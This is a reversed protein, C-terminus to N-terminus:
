NEESGNSKPAQLKLDHKMISTRNEELYNVLASAREEDGGFFEKFHKLMFGNSLKETVERTRHVVAGKSVNIKAVNNSEMIRLIIDKLAKSQTRRQKMEANLSAVEEQLTMWRKLLAPLEGIAPAPATGTPVLLSNTSGAGPVISMKGEIRIIDVSDNKIRFFHAV